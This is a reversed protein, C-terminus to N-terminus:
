QHGSRRRSRWAWAALGAVSLLTLGRGVQNELPVGFELIIDQDGPPPDLRMYQLITQRLPVPQGSATRARWAPDWTEQVVFSQGPGLPARVRMHDNDIWEFRPEVAPGKELLAAYSPIMQNDGELRMPPLADLTATDVVRALGPYRRPVRYIVDGRGSDYLPELVGAFMEPNTFDKYEEMSQKGHVVVADAGFAQLWAIKVAMNPDMIV